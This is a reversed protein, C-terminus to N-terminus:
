SEPIIPPFRDFEADSPALNVHIRAESRDPIYSRNKNSQMNFINLTGSSKIPIYNSDRKVLVLIRRMVLIRPMSGVEMKSQELDDLSLLWRARVYSEGDVMEIPEM